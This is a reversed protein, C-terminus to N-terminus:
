LVGLTMLAFVILIGQPVIIKIWSKLMSQNLEKKLLSYLWFWVSALALGYILINLIM